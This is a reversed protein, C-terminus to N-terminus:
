PHTEILCTEKDPSGKIALMQPHHASTVQKMSGIQFLMSGPKCFSEM